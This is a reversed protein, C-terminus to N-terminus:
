QEPSSPCAAHTWTYTASCPPSITSFQTAQLLHIHASIETIGTRANWRGLRVCRTASEDQQHLNWGLSIVWMVDHMHHETLRDHACKHLRAHAWLFTHCAGDCVCLCRCLEMAPPLSQTGQLPSLTLFSWSVATSETSINQAWSAATWSNAEVPCFFFTWVPIDHSGFRRSILWLNEASWKLLVPFFSPARRFVYNSRQAGATFHKLSPLGRAASGLLWVWSTECGRWPFAVKLIVQLRFM